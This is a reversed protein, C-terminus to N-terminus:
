FFPKVMKKDQPIREQALEEYNLREYISKKLLIIM